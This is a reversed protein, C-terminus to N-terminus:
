APNGTAVRRRAAQKQGSLRKAAVPCHDVIARITNRGAALHKRISSPHMSIPVMATIAAVTRQEGEFLFTAAPRM